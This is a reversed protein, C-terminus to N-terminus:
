FDGEVGNPVVDCYVAGELRWALSVYEGGNHEGDRDKRPMTLNRHRGSANTVWCACSLFVVSDFRMRYRNGVM